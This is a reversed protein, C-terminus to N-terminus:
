GLLYLSQFGFLFIEGLLQFFGPLLDSFLPLWCFSQGCWQGPDVSVARLSRASECCTWSACGYGRRRKQFGQRLCFVPQRPWLERASWVALSPWGRCSRNLRNAGPVRLSPRHASRRVLASSRDNRLLPPRLVTSTNAFCIWSSSPDRLMVSLCVRSANALSSSCSAFDGLPM